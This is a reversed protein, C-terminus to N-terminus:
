VSSNDKGNKSGKEALIIHLALLVAGVTIAIDALNFVPFRFLTIEIFDVVFGRAIRDIGNGLAGGLLLGACIILMRNQPKKKLMYATIAICFLVSVLGLLWTHEDFMSFAAGRNEVYVIDILAPILTFHDTEAFGASILFKGFQDAATVVAAIVIWIYIM